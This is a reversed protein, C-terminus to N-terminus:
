WDSRTCGRPRRSPSEGATSRPIRRDAGSWALKMLWRGGAAAAAQPTPRGAPGSPQSFTGNSGLVSTSASVELASEGRAPRRDPTGAPRVPWGSPNAVPCRFRAFTVNGSPHDTDGLEASPSTPQESACDLTPVDNPACHGSADFIPVTSAVVGSSSSFSVPPTYTPVWSDSSGREPLHEPHEDRQVALLTSDVDLERPLDPDGGLPPFISVVNSLLGCTGTDCIESRRLPPGRAGSAVGSSQPVLDTVACSSDQDPATTEREDSRVTSQGPALLSAGVNRVPNVLLRAPLCEFKTSRTSRGSPWCTM